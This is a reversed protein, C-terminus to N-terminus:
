QLSNIEKEDKSHLIVGNKWSSSKNYNNKTSDLTSLNLIRQHLPSPPTLIPTSIEEIEDHMELKSHDNKVEKLAKTRWDEFTNKNFENEWNIEGM